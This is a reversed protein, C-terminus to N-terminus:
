RRVVQADRRGQHRGADGPARRSADPAGTARADGVAEERVGGPVPTRDGVRRRPPARDEAARRSRAAGRLRRRAAARGRSGGPRGGRRAGGGDGRAPGGAVRRGGRDRPQVPVRPAIARVPQVLDEIEDLAAKRIEIPQPPIDTREALQEIRKEIKRVNDLIGMTDRRSPHDEAGPGRDVIQGAIPAAVSGGYGGHEVLVAFAVRTVAGAEQRAPAASRRHAGRCPRRRVARLRRVVRAVARGAGRRHRDQGRHGARRGEPQPRHGRRGVRRMIGALSGPTRRALLVARPADTRRNTEDIVWRGQPMAGDGAITAAVRAMKFPTALVQGQGYAAFPLTDRVQKRPSPSASRLDRAAGRDGAPGARRAAPGAARLLRQVVRDARAGDGAPRAARTDAVDDRIPRSWGPLRSASAATRCASAPSRSRRRAGPGEPARGGRHGAQLELGAPLRRLARPRAPASRPRRAARRADDRHESATRACGSAPCCPRGRTASRPSCTATRRRARRGRRGEARRPRRGGEARAAVKLQLRIDIALRVDRPRDLIRRM